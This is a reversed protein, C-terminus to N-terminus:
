DFIICIPDNRNSSHQKQLEDILPHKYTYYNSVYFRIPELDKNRIHLLPTDGNIGECKKLESLQNIIEDITM